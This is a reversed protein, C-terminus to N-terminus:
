IEVPPYTKEGFSIFTSTALPPIERRTSNGGRTLRILHNGSEFTADGNEIKWWGMNLTEAAFLNRHLGSQCGPVEELYLKVAFADPLGNQPQLESRTPFLTTSQRSDSCPRISTLINIRLLPIRRDICRFVEATM